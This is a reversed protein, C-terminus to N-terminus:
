DDEVYICAAPCEEAAELVADECGVPVAVIAGDDTRVMEGDRVYGYEGDFAFVRGALDACIGNGICAKKDIWVKM